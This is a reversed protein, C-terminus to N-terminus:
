ITTEDAYKFFGYALREPRIVKAGFVSLGRVATDFSSELRIDETEVIQEAFVISTYSGAMIRSEPVAATGSNVVQNTVYIDFGLDKTWQMTGTGNFGENISFKIGALEMKVKMWPPIAMWMDSEPVNNEMLKQALRGINSLINATTIVIPVGADGEIKNGASAYLGLVYSDIKKALNYAAREAQSGKLDVNAQAKQVDGVKFAFYKQQDVVLNVQTDALEEYNVTGEYDNITPEGLGNFHVTDGAKKIEGEYEHSCIKKAILNDKLTREIKTSWIQPVFFKSYAM